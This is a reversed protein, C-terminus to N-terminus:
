ADRQTTSAVAGHKALPQGPLTAPTRRDSGQARSCSVPKFNEELHHNLEVEGWMLGEHDLRLTPSSAPRPSM